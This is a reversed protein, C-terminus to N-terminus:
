GAAVDMASLLGQVGLKKRSKEGCSGSFKLEDTHACVHSKSLLCFAGVLVTAETLPITQGGVYRM